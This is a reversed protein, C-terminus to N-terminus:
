EGQRTLRTPSTKAQLVEASGPPGGSDECVHDEATGARGQVSRYAQRTDGAGRKNARGAAQQHQELGTLLWDRGLLSPGTEATM